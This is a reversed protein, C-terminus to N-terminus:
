YTAIFLRSDEGMELVCALTGARCFFTHGKEIQLTEWPQVGDAEAQTRPPPQFSSTSEASTSTPESSEKSDGTGDPGKWLFSVTCYGLACAIISARNLQLGDQLAGTIEYVIFDDVPPDYKVVNPMVREGVNVLEDLLDDRYSMMELLVEVDKHKSTLGARVVNDSLSMCEVCDGMLYAHPEDPACYIFRHAQDASIQVYNLFFISFLGCDGPYDKAVRLVLDEEKNRGDKSELREVMEVAAARVENPDSRMLRSYLARLGESEPDVEDKVCLQRLEPVAEIHRIIDPLRRFGCLAEFHGLPLAIEPKHNGDPYHLPFDKHLREALKKNPHAQISLAQRVSLIKFLFPINRRDHDEGLWFHPDEHLLSELFCEEHDGGGFPLAGGAQYQLPQSPEGVTTVREMQPQQCDGPLVVTSPGNPHTGMWLEAWRQGRNLPPARMASRRSREQGTAMAAVLSTAWPKGWAYHQVVGRLPLAPPWTSKDVPRSPPEEEVLEADAAFSVPM